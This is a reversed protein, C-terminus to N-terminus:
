VGLGEIPLVREEEVVLQGLVLDRDAVNGAVVALVLEHCPHQLGVPVLLEVALDHVLEAGEAEQPGGKGFLVATGAGVIGGIAQDRTFDLPDIGAVARGHAHLGRQDHM